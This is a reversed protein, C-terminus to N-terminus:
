PNSEREEYEKVHQGTGDGNLTWKRARNIVMKKNVAEQLGPIRALTIWVDAAEDLLKAEWDEVLPSNAAAVFEAVEDYVRVYSAEKSAKGFTEDAWMCISEITENM